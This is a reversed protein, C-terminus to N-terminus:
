RRALAATGAAPAAPGHGVREFILVDNPLNPTVERDRRAGVYLHRGDPSPTVFLPRFTPVANDFRDPQWAAVYDTAALAPEDGGRWRVTFASDHCFAALAPQATRAIVTACPQAHSYFIGHGFAPLDALWQPAGEDPLIAYANTAGDVDVVFVPTGEAAVALAQAQGVMHTEGLVALMGTDRDRALAKLTADSLLYVRTGDPTFVAAKSPEEMTQLAALTRAPQGAVALVDIGSPRRVTLWRGAADLFLEEACDTQPTAAPRVEFVGEDRLQRRSGATPAFRRWGGCREKAWLRTRGADWALLSDAAAAVQRGVALAGSAADRRLVRLGLSTALYGTTGREDFVLSAVADDGDLGLAAGALRGAYRLWVPPESAEWHLTTDPAPSTDRWGLRIVYIEEPSAQLLVGVDGTARWGRETTAVQELGAFGAGTRRYATLTYGEANEVRFRWWGAAPARYRWWLSSHGLVDTREAEEVTADRLSVSQSGGAGVLVTADALADNAPAPAWELTAQGNAYVFAARDGVPWGFALWYRSNAVAPLTLIKTTTPRKTSAILRLDMFTPADATAGFM